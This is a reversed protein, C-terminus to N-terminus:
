IDVYPELLGKTSIEQACATVKPEVFRKTTAHARPQPSDIIARM